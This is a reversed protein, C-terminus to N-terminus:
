RKRLRQALLRAVVAPQAKPEEKLVQGVLYSFAKKDKRAEDLSGPRSGVVKEIVAAIAGEDAVASLRRERVVELVPKGARAAERLAEKAQARTIASSEVMKVLAVFDGAPVAHAGSM